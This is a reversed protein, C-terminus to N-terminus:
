CQMRCRHWSCVKLQKQELKLLEPEQQLLQDAQDLDIKLVVSLAQVAREGLELELELQQKQKEYQAATTDAASAAESPATSSGSIIHKIDAAKDHSGHPLAPLPAM